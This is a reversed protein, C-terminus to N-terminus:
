RRHGGAEVDLHITLLMRVDVGGIEGRGRCERRVQAPRQGDERGRGADGEVRARVIRGLRPRRNRREAIHQRRDTLRPGLPPVLDVPGRLRDGLGQAGGTIFAMKGQVRGM